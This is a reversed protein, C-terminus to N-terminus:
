ARSQEWAAVYVEQEHRVDAETILLNSGFDARAQEVRAPTLSGDFWSEVDHASVLYRDEAIPEINWTSLDNAAALHAGTLVQVGHADSVKRRFVHLNRFQWPAASGAPSGGTMSPVANGWGFSSPAVRIFGFDIVDGLAKLEAVHVALVEAPTLGPVYTRIELQGASSRAVERSRVTPGYTTIWALGELCLAGEALAPGCPASWRAQEPVSINAGEFDFSNRGLVTGMIHRDVALNGTFDSEFDSWTMPGPPNQSQPSKFCAMTTILPTVRMAELVAEPPFPRDTAASLKGSLGAASLNAALFHLWERRAAAEGARTLRLHVLGDAEFAYDGAAAAESWEQWDRRLGPDGGTERNAAKMAAWVKAVLQSSEGAGSSPVFTVYTFSPLEYAVARLVSRSVEVTM